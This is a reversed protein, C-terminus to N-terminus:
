LHNVSTKRKEINCEYNMILANNKVDRFIMKLLKKRKLLNEQVDISEKKVKEIEDLSIDNVFDNCMLVCLKIDHKLTAELLQDNLIENQKWTAALDSEMSEFIIMMAKVEEPFESIFVSDYNPKKEYDINPPQIIAMMCINANLEELEEIQAAGTLLFNNQENSLIVGAEDKKALLMQEMFYKSDRVRLKPCNHAYHGKENCNYCQVNTVNRPSSTQLNREINGTEKQINSSKFSEEQVNFSCRAIIGDNGVNKSQINVAKQLGM